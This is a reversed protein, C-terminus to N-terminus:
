SIPNKRIRGAGATSPSLFDGFSLFIRRLGAAYTGKRLLASFTAFYINLIPKGL